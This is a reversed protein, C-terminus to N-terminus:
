IASISDVGGDSGDEDAKLYHQLQRMHAYPTHMAAM